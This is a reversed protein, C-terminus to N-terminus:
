QGKELANLHIAVERISKAGFLAHYVEPMIESLCRLVWDAHDLRLKDAIPTWLSPPISMYGLEMQSVMTYYEIGLADALAKQSYGERTRAEKLAAGLVSENRQKKKESLM